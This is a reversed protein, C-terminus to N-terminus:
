SNKIEITNLLKRVSESIRQKREHDSIETTTHVQIAGRWVAREIIPDVIAIILIGSKASSSSNLGPYIKFLKILEESAPSGEVLLSSIVQYRTSGPPHIINLQKAALEIAIESHSYKVWDKPIENGSLRYSDPHWSLNTGKSLPLDPSQVATISNKGLGSNQPTSSINQQNSCSSLGWFLFFLAIKKM